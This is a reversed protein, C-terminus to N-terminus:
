PRASATMSMWNACPLPSFMWNLLMLRGKDPCPEGVRRQHAPDVGQAAAHQVAEIREAQHRRLRATREVRTAVAQREAQGRRVGRARPFHLVEDTRTLWRLTDM